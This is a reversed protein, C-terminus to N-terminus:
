RVHHTQCNPIREKTEVKERRKRSRLNKLASFTLYKRFCLKFNENSGFISRFYKEIEARAELIPCIM